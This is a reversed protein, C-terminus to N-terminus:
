GLEKKFKEVLDVPTPNVGNLLALYTTTFDGLLTLYLMHEVISDGVANVITAKPKLGSLLRDTVEFRKLIRPHEFSSILDIVAFPKEIPHSSWGIFENHNLEPFFNSWATNKANENASIKWKYAAPYTLPGGYIIPTKGVMTSALQKALNQDTPVSAKWSNTALELPEVLAELETIVSSAVLKAAVLVEILARYAAFVGTRPQPAEPLVLTPYGAAQGMEVLKGGHAIVVIQAGTDEAELLAAITEETNGSYSACIVLTDASVFAPIDYTKSVVFPVSLKPWTHAFEAALSSGGMGAFVVNKVERDLTKSAFGFDHRLQEPQHSAFGLADQPDKQAIVNQDDLM